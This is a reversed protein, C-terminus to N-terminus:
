KKKDTVQCLLPDVLFLLVYIQTVLDHRMKLCEVVILVVVKGLFISNKRSGM